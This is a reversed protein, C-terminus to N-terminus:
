SEFGFNPTTGSPRTSFFKAFLMSKAATLSGSDKNGNERFTGRKDLNLFLFPAKINFANNRTVRAM